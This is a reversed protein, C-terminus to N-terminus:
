WDVTIGLINLAIYEFPSLKLFKHQCGRFKSMMKSM